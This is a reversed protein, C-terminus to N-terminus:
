VCSAPKPIGAILSSKKLPGDPFLAYFEQITVVGSKGVKRISLPIGERQNKQLFEIVQWHKESLEEIGVEKALEIAVNKNWQDLDTMYGQEDVDITIGAVEKNPM